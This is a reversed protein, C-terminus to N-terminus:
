SRYLSYLVGIAVIPAIVVLARGVPNRSNYVYQRAQAHRIFVPEDSM